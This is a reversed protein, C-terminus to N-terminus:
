PAFVPAPEIDDPLGVALVSQAIAHATTLHLTVGVRYESAIPLNLVSSLADIVTDVNFSPESM